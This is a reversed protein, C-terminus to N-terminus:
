RPPAGAKQIMQQAAPMAQWEVHGDGFLLNIGDEAHNDTREYLMVDEAGARNSKGAGLYVYSANENVWAAQQDIPANRIEPPVANESSPCIFVEITIDQTKLLTGMDPPYKGRNDNSYLLMALGIQRENSACKGRNATERARNLSPLLISVMLAPTAVNLTPDSSLLTGGPFPSVGHSHWGKEDVWSIAGAPALQAVLDNLPPVLMAPTPVGFLDGFGSYSTILLLAAYVAPATHPLDVYRIATANQEGLRKRIALFSENQLISKGSGAQQVAASVIQPYLGAYLVGDKIAWAPRVVPTALYHITLDGDKFERVSLAMRERAMMASALGTLSRELQTFSQQAKAPDDLKNILVTALSYSGGVTPDSYL